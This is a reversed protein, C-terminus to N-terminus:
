HSREDEHLKTRLRTRSWEIAIVLLIFVLTAEAEM